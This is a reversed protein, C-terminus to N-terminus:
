AVGELLDHVLLEVREPRPQEWARISVSPPARSHDTNELEVKAMLSCYCLTDTLRELFARGVKVMETDALSACFAEM